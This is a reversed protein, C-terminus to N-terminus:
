VNGTHNSLLATIKKMVTIFESEHSQRVLRLDPICITM